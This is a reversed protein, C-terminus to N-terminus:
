DWEEKSAQEEAFVYAILKSELSLSDWTKIMPPSIYNRWDHIKQAEKFKPFILTRIIDM